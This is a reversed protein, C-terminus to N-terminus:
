GPGRRFDSDGACSSRACIPHDSPEPRNRRFLRVVRGRQTVARCELPVLVCCPLSWSKLFPGRYFSPLYIIARGTSDGAVGGAGRDKMPGIRSGNRASHLNCEAPRGPALRSAHVSRCRYNTRMVFQSHVGSRIAISLLRISGASHSYDRSYTQSLALLRTLDIPTPPHRTRRLGRARGVRFRREREARLYRRRRNAMHLDRM